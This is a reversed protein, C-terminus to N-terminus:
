RDRSTGFRLTSVTLGFRGSLQTEDPQWLEQLPLKNLRRTATRKAEETSTAIAIQEVGVCDMYKGTQYIRNKIKLVTQGCLIARHQM